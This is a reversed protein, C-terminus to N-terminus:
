RSFGNNKTSEQLKEVHNKQQEPYLSKAFKVAESLEGFNGHWTSRDWAGGDLCLVEFRTNTPFAELWEAKYKQKEAEWEERTQLDTYGYSKLRKEYEDFSKDAQNEEFTTTVIYPKNWWKKIEAPSRDGNPTIDFDARLKPNVPIENKMKKMGEYRIKVATERDLLKQLQTKNDRIFELHEPDQAVAECTGMERRAMIENHRQYRKGDFNPLDDM